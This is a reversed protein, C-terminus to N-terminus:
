QQFILRLQIGVKKNFAQKLEIYEQDPSGELKMM